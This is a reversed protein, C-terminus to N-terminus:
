LQNHIGDIEHVEAVDMIKDFKILMKYERMRKRHLFKSFERQLRKICKVTFKYRKEQLYKRLYSQIKIASKKQLKYKKQIIYRKAYKQIIPIKKLKLKYRKKIIYGKCIKQIQVRYYGKMIKQELNKEKQTDIKTGICELFGEHGPTYRDIKDTEKGSYIDEWFYKAIYDDESPPANKSKTIGLIEFLGRSM